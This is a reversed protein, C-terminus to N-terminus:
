WEVIEWFSDKGIKRERWKQKEVIVVMEEPVEKM